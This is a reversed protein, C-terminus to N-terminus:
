QQNSGGLSPSDDSMGQLSSAKFELNSKLTDFYIDLKAQEAQDYSDHAKLYSSTPQFGGRMTKTQM